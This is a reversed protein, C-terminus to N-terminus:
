VMAYLVTEAPSYSYHRIYFRYEPVLEQIYAPIEITDEQKHYISIALKPKYTQILNKAGQLARLESGEIDMKIFTVKEHIVEDLAAVEIQVSGTSNDEVVCSCMTAEAQFSLTDERDWLGKKILTVDCESVKAVKQEVKRYNEEDPEFAYIKKVKCKNMLTESTGFDFCGGDVFVEGDSFQIVDEEFYQSNMWNRTKEESLTIICEPKFYQKLEETVEQFYTTTSVLIVADKHETFLEQPSMIRYGQYGEERKKIDRDCIGYIKLGRCIMCVVPLNVGAGYIIIKKDQGKLANVKEYFVPSNERVIDRVLTEEDETVAYRLKKLFIEKSEDDQLTQYIKKAKNLVETIM